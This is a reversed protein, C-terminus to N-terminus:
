KRPDLPYEAFEVADSEGDGDTDFSYPNTGRAFELDDSLGDFDSDKVVTKEKVRYRVSM